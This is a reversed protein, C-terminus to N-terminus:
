KKGNAFKKIILIVLVIIVSLFAFLSIWVEKTGLFFLVDSFILALVIKTLILILFSFITAFGIKASKYWSLNKYTKKFFLFLIYSFIVSAFYWIGSENEFFVLNFLGTALIYNLFVFYVVELVEAVRWGKSKTYFYAVLLYGLLSSWFLIWIGIYNAAFFLLLSGISLLTAFNFVDRLLYDESFNLWFIYYVLAVFIILILPNIIMM